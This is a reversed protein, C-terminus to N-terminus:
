AHSTELGKSEVTERKGRYCRCGMGDVYPEASTEDEALKVKTDDWVIRSIEYRKPMKGKRCGVALRLEERAEELTNARVWEGGYTKAFSIALFRVQEAM